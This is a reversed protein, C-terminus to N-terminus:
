NERSKDTIQRPISRDAFPQDETRKETNQIKNDHTLGQGHPHVPGPASCKKSGQPGDKEPIKQQSHRNDHGDLKFLIIKKGGNGANKQNLHHNQKIM